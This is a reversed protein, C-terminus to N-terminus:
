FPKVEETMPASYDAEESETPAAQGFTLTLPLMPQDELPGTRSSSASTPTATRLTQRMEESLPSAKSGEPSPTM